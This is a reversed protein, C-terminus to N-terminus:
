EVWIGVQAGHAGEKDVFGKVTTSGGFDLDEGFFHCGPRDYAIGAMTFKLELDRSTGSGKNTIAVGVKAFQGGFRLPCLLAMSSIEAKAEAPCVIDVPHHEKVKSMTIKFKCGNMKITAPLFGSSCESFTPLLDIEIATKPVVTGEWTVKKCTVQIGTDTTTFVQPNGGEGTLGTPAAESHFEAASAVGGCMGVAMAAIVLQCVRKGLSHKVEFEV